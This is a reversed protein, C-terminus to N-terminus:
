AAERGTFERPLLEDPDIELAIAIRALEYVGFDGGGNIKRNLTNRAIGAQLAVSSLTHKKNKEIAAAVKQATETIMSKRYVDM